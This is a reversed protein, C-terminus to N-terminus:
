AAPDVDIWGDRSQVLLERSWAPSVWCGVVEAEEIPLDASAEAAVRRVLPAVAAPRVGLARAIAKPPAGASRMRRVEDLLEHDTM